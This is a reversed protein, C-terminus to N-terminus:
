ADVTIGYLHIDTLHKMKLAKVVEPLFKEKRPIEYLLDHEAM